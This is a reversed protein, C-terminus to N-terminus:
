ILPFILLCPWYLPSFLIYSAYKTWSEERLTSYLNLFPASIKKPSIGRQDWHVLCVRKKKLAKHVFMSHSPYALM